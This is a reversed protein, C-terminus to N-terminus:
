NTFQNLYKEIEDDKFGDMKMKNRISNDQMGIKKMKDYKVYLQEKKNVNSAMVQDISQSSNKKKWEEIQKEEIGAKQMKTVISETSMGLDKLKNYKELPDPKFENKKNKNESQM